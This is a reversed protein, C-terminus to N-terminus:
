RRFRRSYLQLPPNRPIPSRPGARAVHRCARRGGCPTGEVAHEDCLRAQFIQRQNGVLTYEVGVADRAQPLPTQRM